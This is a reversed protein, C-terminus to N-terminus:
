FTSGTAAAKTTTLMRQCVNINHFIFKMEVGGGSNCVHVCDMKDSTQHPNPDYYGGQCVCASPTASGSSATFAFQSCSMCTSPTTAGVASSYSKSPCPTCLADGSFQKYTGAVCAICDDGGPGTYGANCLCQISAQAGEASRSNDPCASCTDVSIAGPHPSFTGVGCFTCIADGLEPKYQGPLCEKCAGNSAATYGKQCLCAGIDSNGEELTTTNSPCINQTGGYCWSGIPCIECDSNPSGYYGHKCICAQSSNSGLPAVLDANSCPTASEGGLCYSNVPCEACDGGNPGVYGTSCICSSQVISGSLSYSNVPCYDMDGGECYTNAECLTCPGGGVVQGDVLPGKYGGDCQCQTVASSGPPSSSDVPCIESETGGPCYQGATCPSCSGGNPGSSGPLCTCNLVSSSRIPSTLLVDTTTCQEILGGICWTGISCGTCTGGPVGSLGPNCICDQFRTSGAASNSTDSCIRCTTEAFAGLLSSYKGTGCLTCEGTGTTTKYTGQLCNNCEVGNSSATYGVNCICDTIEDSGADSNTRPPCGECSEHSTAAIATSYKGTVCNECAFPGYDLKYTGAGCPTCDVGNPGTYGPICNCDQIRVSGADANSFAPCNQCSNRDDSGLDVGYQGENCLTCSQDGTSEKFTGKACPTCTTSVLSYGAACVCQSQSSAGPPSYMGGTTGACPSSSTGGLCFSGEPCLACAGGNPGFYGPECICASASISAVASSAFLSPCDQPPNEGGICFTKAVCATCDGGNDGHYGPGCVCATELTSQAPSYSNARCDTRVEDTCFTNELCRTCTESTGYVYPTSCFAFLCLSLLYNHDFHLSRLSARKSHNLRVVIM